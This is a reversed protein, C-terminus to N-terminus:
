ITELPMFYHWVFWVISFYDAVIRLFNSNKNLWPFVSQAPICLSVSLVCREREKVFTERIPQCITIESKRLLFACVFIIGFWSFCWRLGQDLTPERHGKWSTDLREVHKCPAPVPSWRPNALGVASMSNSQGHGWSIVPCSLLLWFAALHVSVGPFNSRLVPDVRFFVFPTNLLLSGRCIGM